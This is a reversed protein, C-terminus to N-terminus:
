AKLFPVLQQHAAIFQPEYKGVEFYFSLPVNLNRVLAVLKEQELVFASSQGGVKSFLHPRSLALYTSSLGGLSAGM